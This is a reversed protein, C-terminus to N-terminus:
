AEQQRRGRLSGPRAFARLDLTATGNAQRPVASRRRGEPALRYSNCVFNVPRQGYAKGM